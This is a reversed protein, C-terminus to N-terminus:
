APLARVRGLLHRLDRGGDQLEAEVHRHQHVVDAHQDGPMAAHQRRLREPEVRHRRDAEPVQGLRRRAGEPQWSASL